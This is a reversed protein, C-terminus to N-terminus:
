YIEIKKPEKLWDKAMEYYNYITSPNKMGRAKNNCAKICACCAICKERDVIDFRFKDIADVPCVKYCAGCGICNPNVSIFDDRLTKKEGSPIVGPVNKETLDDISKALVLESKINFGYQEAKELDEANPRSTYETPRNILFSHEGIFAAHSFPRCGQKKVMEKLEIMHDGYDRDGYVSICVTPTEDAELNSMWKRLLNPVRGGYVPLAIVLLEDKKLKLFQERNDAKTLDLFNHKEFKLGKAINKIIKETTKTASFYVFNASHLVM